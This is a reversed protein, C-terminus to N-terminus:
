EDNVVVADSFGKITRLQSQLSRLLEIRTSGQACTIQDMSMTFSNRDVEGITVKQKYAIITSVADAPSIRLGAKETSRSELVSSNM